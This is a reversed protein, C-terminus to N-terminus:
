TVVKLRNVPVHKGEFVVYETGRKNIRVTRTIRKNKKVFTVYTMAGGMKPLISYRNNNEYTLRNVENMKGANNQAFEVTISDNSVYFRPPILYKDDDLKILQNNVIFLHPHPYNKINTGDKRTMHIYTLGQNKYKEIIDNATKFYNIIKSFM